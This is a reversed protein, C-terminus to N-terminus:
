HRIAQWDREANFAGGTQEPTHCSKACSDLGAEGYPLTPDELHEAAPGHCAECQVDILEPTSLRDRFGGAVGMGTVHCSVCQPLFDEGGDVLTEMARAHASARWIEYDGEHCDRCAAVTRYPSPPAPDTAALGAEARARHWANARVTAARSIAKGDPDEAVRDSLLLSRGWVLGVSRNPYVRLQLHGVRRGETGAFLAISRGVQMPERAMVAEESSILVDIQPFRQLIEIGKGLDAQTLVILVSCRKALKDLYRELTKEYDALAAGGAPRRPELGATSFTELSGVMGIIGVSFRPFEVVTYPEARWQRRDRAALNAALVPIGAGALAERVPQAAALEREGLVAAAYGVHRMGEVLGRTFFRYGPEPEAAFDGADLV